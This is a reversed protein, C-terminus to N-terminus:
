IAPVDPETELGRTPTVSGDTGFGPNDTFTGPDNGFSPSTQCAKLEREGIM